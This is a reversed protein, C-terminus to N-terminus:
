RSQLDLPYSEYDECATSITGNDQSPNEDNSLDCEARKWIKETVNL